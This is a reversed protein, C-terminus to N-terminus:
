LRAGIARLFRATLFVSAALLVACLLFLSGGLLIVFLRDARHADTPITTHRDILAVNRLNAKWFADFADGFLPVAGILADVAINYAIRALTFRSVRRRVAEVLIGFAM